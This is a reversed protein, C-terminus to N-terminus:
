FWTKVRFCENLPKPGLTKTRLLHNSGVPMLEFNKSRMFTIFCSWVCVCVCLERKLKLTKCFWVFMYVFVHDEVCVVAGLRGFVCVLLAVKQKGSVCLSSERWEYASLLRRWWGWQQKWTRKRPEYVPKIYDIHCVTDPVSHGRSVVESQWYSM